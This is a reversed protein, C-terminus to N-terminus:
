EAQGFGFFALCRRAGHMTHTKAVAIDFEDIGGGPRSGAGNANVSGPLVLLFAVHGISFITVMAGWHITGAARLFGKTEGIMVMRMPIALFLYVPVFIIFMGYWGMYIWLYQLPVAIYVWLLVRRDARRTPILSLYEKLAIYSVFAFFLLAWGRDVVLALCFLAAMIWWSRIRARIEDLKMAPRIRGLIGTILTAVVLVSFIGALAFLVNTHIDDRM